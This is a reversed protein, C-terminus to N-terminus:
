TTSTESSAQRLEREKVVAGVTRLLEYLNFPKPMFSVDDSRVAPLDWVSPDSSMLIFPMDPYKDAWRLFFSYGECDESGPDLNIDSIVAALNESGKYAICKDAEEVTGASIVEYGARQLFFQLAYRARSDDELLLLTQKGSPNYDDATSHKIGSGTM